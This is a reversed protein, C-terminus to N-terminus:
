RWVWVWVWVVFPDTLRVCTVCVSLSFSLSVALGVGTLSLAGIQLYLCDQMGGYVPYWAAGNTIGGSCGCLSVSGGM